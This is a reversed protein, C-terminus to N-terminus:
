IIQSALEDIRSGMDEVNEIISGNLQQIEKLM